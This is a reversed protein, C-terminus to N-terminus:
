LGGCDGSTDTALIPEICPALRCNSFPMLIADFFTLPLCTCAEILSAAWDGICLMKEQITFKDAIAPKTEPLKALTNLKPLTVQPVKLKQGAMRQALLQMLDKNNMKKTAADVLEAAAFPNGTIDFIAGEAALSNCQGMPIPIDTLKCNPLVLEELKPLVGLTSPLKALPNGGARLHKLQMCASLEKPLKTVKCGTIDLWELERCHGIEAPLSTIPCKSLDLYRLGQMHGLWKPVEAIANGSVDLFELQPLQALEVPLSALQNDDLRLVRLRALRNITGPVSPIVNGALNLEELMDFPLAGVLGIPFAALRNKSLDLLRVKAFNDSVVLPVSTLNCGSLDLEFSIMDKAIKLRLALSSDFTREEEQRKKSPADVFDKSIMFIREMEIIEAQASLHRFNAPASLVDVRKSAKKWQKQKMLARIEDNSLNNRIQLSDLKEQKRIKDLEAKQKMGERAAMNLQGLMDAPAFVGPATPAQMAQSQLVGYTSM